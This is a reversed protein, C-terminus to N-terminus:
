GTNVRTESFVVSFESHRPSFAHSPISNTVEWRSVKLTSDSLWQYPWCRVLFFSDNKENNMIVWKFYFFVLTNFLMCVKGDSLFLIMFRNWKGNWELDMQMSYRNSTINIITGISLNQLIMILGKSCHM